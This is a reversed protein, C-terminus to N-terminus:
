SWGDRKPLANTAAAPASNSEWPATAVDRLPLDVATFASIPRPKGDEFVTFDAETLGRVPKRDHDLVSVDVQVLDIGGRFTSQPSQGRATIVLATALSSVAVIFPRM